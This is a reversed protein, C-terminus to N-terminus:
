IIKAKLLSNHICYGLGTRKLQGAFDSMQGHQKPCLKGVCLYIQAGPEGVRFGLALKIGPGDVNTKM